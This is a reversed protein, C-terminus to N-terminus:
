LQIHVLSDLLLSPLVGALLLAFAMIAAASLAASDLEASDGTRPPTPLRWIAHLKHLAIGLLALQVACVAITSWIMGSQLMSAVLVYRAGLAATPPAAAAALLGVSLVAALAPRRRGLGELDREKHVAGAALAAFFCLLGLGQTTVAVLMARIAYGADQPGSGVCLATLLAVLGLAHASAFTTLAGRTTSTGFAFLLVQWAFVITVIPLLPVLERAILPAAAAAVLCIAAPAPGLLWLACADVRSRKSLIRLMNFARLAFCAFLLGGGIAAAGIPRVQGPRSVPGIELLDIRGHALSLLAISFIAIATIFASRQLNRRRQAPRAEDDLGFSAVVLVEIALLALLLDRSGVAILAAAGALLHLALERGADRASRAALVRGRVILILLGQMAVVLTAVVTEMRFSWLETLLPGLTSQVSAAKNTAPLYQYIALVFATAAAVIAFLLPALGRAKNAKHSAWITWLGIVIAASLLALAPGLVFLDDPRFVFM